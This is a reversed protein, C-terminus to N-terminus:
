HLSRQFKLFNKLFSYLFNILLDIDELFYIYLFFLLFMIEITMGINSTKFKKLAFKSM